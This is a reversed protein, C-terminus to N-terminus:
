YVTDLNKINTWMYDGNRYCWLKNYSKLTYFDKIDSQFISHLEGDDMNLIIIKLFM